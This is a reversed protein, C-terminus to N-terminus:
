VPQNILIESFHYYDGWVHITYVRIIILWPPKLHQQCKFHFWRDQAASSDGGAPNARTVVAVSLIAFVHQDQVTSSFGGAAVCSFNPVHLFPCTLVHWIPFILVLTQTYFPVQCRDQVASSDGGHEPDGWTVVAVHNNKKVPQDIPIEVFSSFLGRMCPYYVGKYQNVLPTKFTASMYCPIVPGSSCLQWWWTRSQGADGSGSLSQLCISTRSKQASVVLQWAHFIQYMFFAVHWYMDFPFFSFQHRRTFHFRAGTKSQLATVVMNQIAGRWWRSM